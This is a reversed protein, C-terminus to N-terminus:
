KFVGNAVFVQSRRYVTLRTVVPSVRLACGVGVRFPSFGYHAGLYCFLTVLLSAFWPPSCGGQHGFHNWSVVEWLADPLAIKWPVFWPEVSGLSGHFVFAGCFFGLIWVCGISVLIM